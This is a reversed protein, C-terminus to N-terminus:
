GNGDYANLFKKKSQSVLGQFDPSDRLPDLNYDYKVHLFHILSAEDGRKLERVAETEEGLTALVAAVEYAPADVSESKTADRLLKRAQAKNGKKALVRSMLLRATKQEPATEPVSRLEEISKDLMGKQEYIEALMVRTGMMGPDLEAAKQGFALAEDAQRNLRLLRALNLNIVQSEPDAKQALRMEGIASDLNDELAHIWSMRLHAVANNEDLEIAKRLLAAARTADKEYQAVVALASYAHSTRPDTEIAKGACVKAKEIFEGPTGPKLGYIAALSYADALMAEADAFGPEIEIASKFHGIAKGLNDGTRKKWFYVGKRYEAVAEGNLSATEPEASSPEMNLKGALKSVLEESVRDQLSFVDSFETDFKEAWVPRGTAVDVLQVNIRVRDGDRQVTGTLVADVGLERGAEVPQGNLYGAVASTPTVSLGASSGLRSILTDALGVSLKEDQRGGIQKFPLVSISRIAGSGDRAPGSFLYIAFFAAFVSAILAIAPFLLVPVRMKGGPDAAIDAVPQRPAEFAPSAHIAASVLAFDAPEPDSGTEIYRERVPATFRYGLKPVTEIIEEACGADRLAKRVMYIHQALNAEEVFSEAWVEDLIEKKRLIRERNEVLYRLIDLSKQTIPVHGGDATLLHNTVDLRFKGFDYCHTKIGSDIV